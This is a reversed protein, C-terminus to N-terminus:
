HVVGRLWAVEPKWFMFVPVGEEYRMHWTRGDGSTFKLFPVADRVDQPPSDDRIWLDM